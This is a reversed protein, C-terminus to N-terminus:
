GLFSTPGAIAHPASQCEPTHIAGEQKTPLAVHDDVDCVVIEKLESIESLLLM